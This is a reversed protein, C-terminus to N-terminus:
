YGILEKRIAQIRNNAARRIADGQCATTAGVTVEDLIGFLSESVQELNMTGIEAIRREVERNLVVASKSPMM